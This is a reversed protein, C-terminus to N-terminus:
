FLYLLKWDGNQKIFYVRKIDINIQWNQNKKEDSPHSGANVISNGSSVVLVTREGKFFSLSEVPAITAKYFEDNFLAKIIKGDKSQDMKNNNNSSSNWPIMELAKLSNYDHAVFIQQMLQIKKAMDKKDVDSVTPIKDGNEWSWVIPQSAIFSFSNKHCIEKDDEQIGGIKAEEGTARNVRFLATNCEKGAGSINIIDAVVLAENKTGVIFRTVDEIYDGFGIFAPEGNLYWKTNWQYAGKVVFIDSKDSSDEVTNSKCGIALLM